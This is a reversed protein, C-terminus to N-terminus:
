SLSEAPNVNSPKQNNAPTTANLNEATPALQNSTTGPSSLQEELQLKTKKTPPSTNSSNNSTNQEM